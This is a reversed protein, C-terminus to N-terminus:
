AHTLTRTDVLAFSSSSHFFLLTKRQACDSGNPKRVKKVGKRNYNISKIIIWNIVKERKRHSFPILFIFYFFILSFRSGFGSSPSSSSSSSSLTRHSLVFIFCIFPSFHRSFQFSLSFLAHRFFFFHFRTITAMTQTSSELRKKKMTKNVSERKKKQAESLTFESRFDRAWRGCWLSLISNKKSLVIEERTRTRKKGIQMEVLENAEYENSSFCFVRFSFFWLSFHRLLLLLLHFSSIRLDDIAYIAILRFTMITSILFIFRRYYFFIKILAYILVLNLWLIFFFVFFLLECQVRFVVAILSM